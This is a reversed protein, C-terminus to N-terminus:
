SKKKDTIYKCVGAIVCGTFVISGLALPILIITIVTELM